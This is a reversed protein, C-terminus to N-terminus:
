NTIVDTIPRRCKVCTHHDSTSKLNNSCIKCVVFDGCPMVKTEPKRDMCIMCLDDDDTDNMKVVEISQLTTPDYNKFVDWNYYNDKHNVKAPSLYKLERLYECFAKGDPTKYNWIGLFADNVYHSSHVSDPITKITTRINEIAKQEMLEDTFKADVNPNFKAAAKNNTTFSFGLVLMTNFIDPIKNYENWKISLYYYGYNDDHVLTHSGSLEKINNVQESTLKDCWCIYFKDMNSGVTPPQYGMFSNHYLTQARTILDKPCDM